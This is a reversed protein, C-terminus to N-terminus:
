VIVRRMVKSIETSVFDYANESVVFVGNVYLSLLFGVDSKSTISVKKIDISDYRSLFSIKEKLIEWYVGNGKMKDLLAKIEQELEEDDVLFEIGCVFANYQLLFDEIISIMVSSTFISQQYGKKLADQVLAYYNQQPNYPFCEIERTSVNQFAKGYKDRVKKM